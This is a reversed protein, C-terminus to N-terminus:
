PSQLRYYRTAHNAAEPDEVQFVPTVNTQLTTWDLLDSSVMVDLQWGLSNEVALRVDTRGMGLANTIVSPNDQWYNRYVSNLEAQEVIGNGNFDGRAFLQATTFVGDPGYRTSEDTFTVVRYHYIRGPSLLGMAFNTFAEASHRPLSHMPTTAGYNTTLGYEVFMLSDLDYSTATASLDLSSFGTTSDFVPDAPGLHVDPPTLVLEFAGIDVHAGSSRMFGRQDVGSLANDGADFAPSDLQLALTMTSGGYLSLPELRPDIPSTLTGAQDNNEGHTFGTSGEVRGILSYGQSTYGGQVDNGTGNPGTPEGSGGTGASNQALLSNHVTASMADASHYVAGGSGGAGGSGDYFSQTNGRGGSGAANGSFTGASLILSGRNFCGGGHGGAGGNAGRFGGGGNGGRGATNAAFTCTDISLFSGQDAYIGGGSGGRGGQAAEYAHGGAGGPGAANATVTCRILSLTGTSYLGGGNGGAGGAGADASTSGTEGDGGTGGAGAAHSSIMCETLTLIGRNYIGGGHAGNEGPAGSPSAPTGNAGSAGNPAKGNCLTLGSISVTANLSSIHFVRSLNNGSIITNTASNGILTLSKDIVLEGGTLNIVGNTEFTILAGEEAEAIAQRLSGTGSDNLTRVPTRSQFSMDRGHFLGASNSAAVRFHYTQGPELGTVVSQITTYVMASSIFYNSSAHGYNTDSGWEFWAWTQIGDPYITGNLFANTYDIGTAKVTAAVAFPLDSSVRIPSGSLVGDHASGSSVARNSATTGGSEDFNWYAELHAETGSLPGYMASQIQFQSRAARWIRVEDLRGFWFEAHAGYQRGLRFATSASPNLLASPQNTQFVGNIYFSLGADSKTLAVHQWAGYPFPIGTTGWQDGLRIYGNTDTGMYLANGPSGQSLMERYGNTPNPCLAWCEVTFDGNTPVVGTPIEVWDNTGDFLLAQGAGTQATAPTAVVCLAIMVCIGWLGYATLIGTKM